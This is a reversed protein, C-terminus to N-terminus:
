FGRGIEARYRSGPGKRVPVLATWIIMACCEVEGLRDARVLRKEPVSINLRNKSCVHVVDRTFRHTFKQAALITTIADAINLVFANACFERDCSVECDGVDVSVLDSSELLSTAAFVKSSVCTRM